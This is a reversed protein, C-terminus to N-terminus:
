ASGLVHLDAALCRRSNASPTPGWRWQIFNAGKEQDVGSVGAQLAITFRPCPQLVRGVGRGDHRGLNVFERATLPDAGHPFEFGYKFM